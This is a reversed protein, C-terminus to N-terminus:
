RKRAGMIYGPVDHESSYDSNLLDYVRRQLPSDPDIGKAMVAAGTDAQSLGALLETDGGPWPPAEGTFPYSFLFRTAPVRRSLYFLQAEDGWIFLRQGPPCLQQVREAAQPATAFSALNYVHLTRLVEDRQLWLAGNCWAWGGLAAALLAWRLGRAARPLGQGYGWRDLGALGLGALVAVPALLLVTYHPYYRGAAVLSLLGLGLWALMWRRQGGDRGLARWGLWALATWAGLEPLLRRALGLAPRWAGLGQLVYSQNYALTCNLFETGAHLSAFLAWVAAWPLAAGLATFGVARLLGGERRQAAWPLILVGALLPQKFLSALGLGLGALLHHRPRLDAADPVFLAALAGLLPLTQWTETNAALAQTRTGSLLFAAALGALGAVLARQGANHQLRRGLHGRSGLAELLGSLALVTLLVWLLSLVRLGLVGDSFLAQALANMAIALPPKQELFDRYPLGHGDRWLWALSAYEGEDRDLRLGLSPLRLLLTMVTAVAAWAWLLRRKIM